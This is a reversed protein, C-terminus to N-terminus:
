DGVREYTVAFLAGDIPYLEGGVGLALWDGKKGKMTGEPTVVEFEVPMKVAYINATKHFEEMAVPFETDLPSGNEVRKRRDPNKAGNFRVVDGEKPSPSGLYAWLAERVVASLTVNRKEALEVLQLRLDLETLVRIWGRDPRLPDAYGVGNGTLTSHRLRQPHIRSM